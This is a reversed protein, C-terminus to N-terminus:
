YGRQKQQPLVPPPKLPPRKKLRQEKRMEAYVEAFAAEVDKEKWNYKLVHRKLREESYGRRLHRDIYSKLQEKAMVKPPKIYHIVLRRYEDQSFVVVSFSLGLSLLVVMALLRISAKERETPPIGRSLEFIDIATDPPTVVIEEERIVRSIILAREKSTAVRNQSNICRVKWKWIGDDLEIGAFVNKERLKVSTIVARASNNTLLECRTIDVLSQPTFSFIM